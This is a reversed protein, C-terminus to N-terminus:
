TSRPRRYVGKFAFTTGLHRHISEKPDIKHQPHKRSTMVRFPRVNRSRACIEVSPSCKSRVDARKVMCDLLNADRLTHETDINEALCFGTETFGCDKNECRELLNLRDCALSLDQDHAMGAFKGVLNLILISTKALVHWGDLGGDKISTGRNLFVGLYELILVGM